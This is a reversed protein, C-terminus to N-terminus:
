TTFGRIGINANNGIEDLKQFGGNTAHKLGIFNSCSMETMNLLVVDIVDKFFIAQRHSVKRHNPQM